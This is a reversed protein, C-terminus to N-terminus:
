PQGPEGHGNGDDLLGNSHFTGNPAANTALYIAGPSVLPLNSRTLTAVVVNREGPPGLATAVFRGANAPSGASAAPAVSYTFGAIPAFAHGGSGFATAWQGVVDNQFNVVGPGNAVQLAESIASEAVFHVQVAGRFNRTAEVNATGILLASAVLLLLTGMAFLAVALAFGQERPRSPTGRHTTM